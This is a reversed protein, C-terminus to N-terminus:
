EAMRGLSKAVSPEIGGYGRPHGLFCKKGLDSWSLHIRTAIVTTFFDTLGQSAPGTYVRSRTVTKSPADRTYVPVDSGEVKHDNFSATHVGQCVRTKRTLLSYLCHKLIVKTINLHGTAMTAYMLKSEKKSSVAFNGCMFLRGFKSM